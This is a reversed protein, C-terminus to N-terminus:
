KELIMIERWVKQGPRGYIITKRSTLKIFKNNKLNEPITNIINFGNVNPNIFNQTALQSNHSTIFVPWIMIIRGNEKLIKKFEILSKSYLNELEKKVNNIDIKGTQPGLYPETIIADISNTKIFKSLELVSSNYLQCDNIQEGASRMSSQYNSKIWDINKKTDAIAKASVDSGILNKYGLLLGETLITGSGCFPDLIADENKIQALNIMIQALKPPLMGSFDDRAPRGYDRFSLEKFPQVALTKGILLGGKGGKSLPTPLNILIIEIGNEALGNQEVVVSSLTPERSTVWRSSIGNERLHKKIEMALPKENFKKEGYYSVGFNFKGKVDINEFLKIIKNLLKEKDLSFSEENVIGIKITGGLKKILDKANIERNTELILVNNTLYASNDFSSIKKVALRFVASIEATSLTPNSGLIFFYKM